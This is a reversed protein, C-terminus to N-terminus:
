EWPSSWVSARWQVSCSSLAAFTSLCTVFDAAAISRAERIPARKSPITVPAESLPVHTRIVPGVVSPRTTRPKSPSSTPSRTRTCSRRVSALRPKMSKAATGGLRHVGWISRAIGNGVFVLFEEVAVLASGQPDEGLVQLREVRELPLVDAVRDHKEARRADRRVPPEALVVVSRALKRTKDGRPGFAQRRVRVPVDDARAATGPDHFGGIAAGAVGASLCDAEVDPKRALLQRIGIQRALEGELEV